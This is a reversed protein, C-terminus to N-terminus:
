LFKKFYKKLISPRFDGIRRESIGISDLFTLEFEKTQDGNIFRDIAPKLEFPMTLGFYIGTLSKKISFFRPKKELVVLRKENEKKWYESKTFFLTKYNTKIFNQIAEDKNIGQECHLKPKKKDIYNVSEFWYEKESLYNMNEKIFVDVALELCIGRHNEAYHAWMMENFYGYSPRDKVFCILQASKKIDDGLRFQHEIHSEDSYSDSYWQDFLHNTGGFAWLQNEKPDNMSKMSNTRLQMKPLIHEIVTNLKTFHYVKEHSKTDM